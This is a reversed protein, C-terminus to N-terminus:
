TLTIMTYDLGFMFYFRCWQYFTEIHRKRTKCKIKKPDLSELVLNQIFMELLFMVTDYWSELNYHLAYKEEELLITKSKWDIFRGM